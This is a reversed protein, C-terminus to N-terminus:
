KEPRLPVAIWRHDSGEFGASIVDVMAIHPGDNQGSVAVGGLRYGRVCGRSSPVSDDRYALKAAPADAIQSFKLEFGGYNDTMDKCNAPTAQSFAAIELTYTHGSIAPDTQISRYTLSNGSVGLESVPNFAALVGPNASLQYKSILSSAKDRAQARAAGIKAAEDDIRVRVPTGKLYSDAQTDIFYYTSYPFGSGDQVGFEEFAFVRRDPSFGEISLSSIDAALAPGALLGLWVAAGCVTRSNGM